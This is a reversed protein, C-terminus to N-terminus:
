IGVTVTKAQHKIADVPRTREEIALRLAGTVGDSVVAPTGAKGQHTGCADLPVIEHADRVRAALRVATSAELQGDYAGMRLGEFYRRAAPDLDPHLQRLLSEGNRRLVLTDDSGGRGSPDGVTSLAVTSGQSILAEIAARASRLPLALGDI